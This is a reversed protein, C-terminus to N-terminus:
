IKEFVTAATRRISAGSYEPPKSTVWRYQLSFECDTSEGDAQWGHIEIELNCSLVSFFGRRAPLARHELMKGLVEFVQTKPESEGMEFLCASTEFISSLFTCM